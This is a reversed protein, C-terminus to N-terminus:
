DTTKTYELILGTINNFTGSLTSVGITHSTDNVDARIAFVQKNLRLADARVMALVNEINPIYLWEGTLSINDTIVVKRYLPKGFWTGIRREEEDYVEGTYDISGGSGPLDTILYQIGDDLTKDGLADYEAKTLEIPKSGPGGGEDWKSIQEDTVTRHEVDSELQSLKSYGPGALTTLEGNEKINFSM